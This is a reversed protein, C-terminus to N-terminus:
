KFLEMQRQNDNDSKKSFENKWKKIALDAQDNALKRQKDTLFRWALRTIDEPCGIAFCCAAQGIWAQHNISPATLNQECSKPWKDIIEMMFKGYIEANSCFDIAKKLYEERKPGHVIRWMGSGIEEWESYHHYIRKM